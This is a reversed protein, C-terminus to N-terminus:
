GRMEDEREYALLAIDDYSPDDIEGHTWVISRHGSRVTAGDGYFAAMAAAAEVEKASGQYTGSKDYVKYKPSAAM